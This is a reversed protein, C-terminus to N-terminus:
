AFCLLWGGGNFWGFCVFVLLVGAVVMPMVLLVCFVNCLLLVFM